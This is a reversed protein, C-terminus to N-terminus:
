TEALAEELSGQAVFTPTDPLQAELRYICYRNKGAGKARYLAKDVNGYVELFDQGPMEVRLIGISASITHEEGADDLYNNYFARLVEVARERITLLTPEGLVFALFEDGGIRGVVDESRFIRRLEGSLQALVEDGKLHGINDNVSKFNDVDIMFLVGRSELLAQTILEETHKKNYLGSLADLKAEELLAEQNKIEESLEKNKTQYGLLTCVRFNYFLMGYVGSLVAVGKLIQDLWLFYTEGNERYALTSLLLYVNCIGMWLTMFVRQDNHALVTQILEGDIFRIALATAGILLLLILLNVQGSMERNELLQSFPIRRYWAYAALVMSRCSMVHITFAFTVFLNKQMDKTYFLRFQVFLLLHLFLYFGATSLSVMGLLILPANFLGMAVKKPLSVRPNIGFSNEALTAILITYVLVLAIYIGRNALLELLLAM